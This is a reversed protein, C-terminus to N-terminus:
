SKAIRSLEESYYIATDTDILGLEAYKRISDDMSHMKFSAGTQIVMPLQLLEDTRIYKKVAENSMLVETALLRGKKDRPPILLQNIVGRLCNALLSLIQKRNETPFAGVLRDLAQITNPAHYSTIVLYGAEAASLAIRITELDDLEGVVIVNPDQRLSSKLAASFSNTDVGVERHQIISKINSHTYEIPRELIVIVAKRERNILEVMAAMTTTKGSGVPGTILILGDKQRALDNIADPLKLEEISSIKSNILRLTAGLFGRQQYVNVRFRNEMDYQIGFDLEKSSEFEKIQQKSMLSFVMLEIDTPEMEPLNLIELEGFVRLIPPSGAILHLDSAGKKIALELIKNINTHDLLLEIEAKDKESLQTFVAGIGFSNNERVVEVRTVKIATSIVNNRGPLQFAINMQSNLSFVEDSEFFIGGSDLDKAILNKNRVTKDIPNTIECTIPILIYVRNSKRRESTNVRRM